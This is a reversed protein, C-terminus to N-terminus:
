TFEWWMPIHSEEDTNKLELLIYSRNTVYSSHKWSNNNWGHWTFIVMHYSGQRFATWENGSWDWEVNVVARVVM